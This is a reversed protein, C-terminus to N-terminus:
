RAFGILVNFLHDDDMEVGAAEVAAEIDVTHFAFNDGDKGPVSLSSVADVVSSDGGNGGSCGALATVGMAAITAVFFRAVRSPRTAVTTANKMKVGWHIRTM